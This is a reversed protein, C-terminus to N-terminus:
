YEFTVKSRRYNLEFSDFGFIDCIKQFKYECSEESPLMGDYSDDYYSFELETESDRITIDEVQFGLKEIEDVLEKKNPLEFETETKVDPKTFDFSVYSINVKDGNKCDEGRTALDSLVWGDEGLRGIASKMDDLIVLVNDYNIIDESSILINFKSVTKNKSVLVPKFKEYNSNRALYDSYYMYTGNGSQFRVEYGSDIFDLMADVINDVVDNKNDTSENSSLEENFKKIHKM